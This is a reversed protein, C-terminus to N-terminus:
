AIDADEKQSKNLLNAVVFVMRELEAADLGNYFMTGVKNQISGFGAKPVLSIAAEKVTDHVFRYQSSGMRELFQQEVAQNLLEYVTVAGDSQPKDAGQRTEEWILVLYKEEFINGLCASFLLLDM